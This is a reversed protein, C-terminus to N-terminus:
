AVPSEGLTVTATHRVGEADAWTVSVARGPDLADLAASLEDHTTVATGDISTILSGADLGAKAAPGDEVVSAVVLSQSGVSVGLYARPGIRVSGAENGARIQAIVSMADEIPVAYSVSTTALAPGPRGPVATTTQGGATTMGAVEGDDDFMPGGSDGPEAGANTQIAGTLTEARGENSVTVQQDLATVQGSAAVLVGGGEANGVATLADGVALADDDLTVTALGSAGELQILAVDREADWGVVSAPYQEGTDAVTATLSTSGEVVHYNTLVQGSATLVMGTGAGEGSLTTSTILVVGRIQDATPTASVSATAASQQVVPRSWSAPTRVVPVAASTALPAAVTPITLALACAGAVAMSLKTSTKM